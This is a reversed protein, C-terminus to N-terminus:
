VHTYNLRDCKAPHLTVDLDKRSRRHLKTLANDYVCMVKYKDRGLVVLLFTFFGVLCTTWLKEVFIKRYEGERPTAM